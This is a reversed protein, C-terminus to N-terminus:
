SLNDHNNYLSLWIKNRIAFNILIYNSFKEHNKESLAKSFVSSIHVLSDSALVEHILVRWIPNVSEEKSDIRCFAEWGM